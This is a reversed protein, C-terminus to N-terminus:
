PDGRGRLRERRARLEAPMRLRWEQHGRPRLLGAKSRPRLLEVAEGGSLLACCTRSPYSRHNGHRDGRLPEAREDQLRPIDSFSASFRGSPRSSPRELARTTDSSFGAPRTRRPTCAPRLQVGARRRRVVVPERRREPEGVAPPKTESMAPLIVCRWTRRQQGGPVVVRCLQGRGWRHVAAPAAMPGERSSARRPLWFPVFAM